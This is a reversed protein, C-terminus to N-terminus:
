RPKVRRRAAQRADIAYTTQSATPQSVTLTVLAVNVVHGSITEFGGVGIRVIGNWPGVELLRMSM